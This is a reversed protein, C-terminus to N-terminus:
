MGFKFNVPVVVSITSRIIFVDPKGNSRVGTIRLCAAQLREAVAGGLPGVGYILVRRGVVLGRL